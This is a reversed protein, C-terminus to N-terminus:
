EIEEKENFTPLVKRVYEEKFITIERTTKAVNLELFVDMKFKGVPFAIGRFLYASKPNTDTYSFVESGNEKKVVVEVRDLDYIASSSLFQNEQLEISFDEIKGEYNSFTVTVEEGIQTTSIEPDGSETYVITASSKNFREILKNIDEFTVPESSLKDEVNKSTEDYIQPVNLLNLKIEQKEKEEKDLMGNVKDIIEQGLMM